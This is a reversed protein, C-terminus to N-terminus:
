REGRTGARRELGRDASGGAGGEDSGASTDGGDCAGECYEFAGLDPLGDDIRPALGPATPEATPPMAALEAPLAVGADRVAADAVLHGRGASGHADRPRPWEFERASAPRVFGHRPEAVSTATSGAHM